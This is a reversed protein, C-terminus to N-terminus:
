RDCGSSASPAEPYGGIKDEVTFAPALLPEDKVIVAQYGAANLRDRIPRAFTELKDTVCSLVVEQQGGLM